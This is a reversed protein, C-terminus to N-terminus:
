SEVDVIGRPTMCYTTEMYTTVVRGKDGVGVGMSGVTKTHGGLAQCHHAFREDTLWLEYFAWVVILVAGLIGVVTVLVVCCAGGDM